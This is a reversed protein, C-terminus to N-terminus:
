LYEGKWPKVLTAREFRIKDSSEESYPIGLYCTVNVGDRNVILGSIPGLETQLLTKKEIEESDKFILKQSYTWPLLALLFLLYLIMMMM